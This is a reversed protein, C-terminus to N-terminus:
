KVFLNACDSKDGQLKDVTHTLAPLVAALSEKVAKPSGPFNIVVSEGVTGAVARSIMAHPTKELGVAVIAREFGTLRKDIVAMTAEPSVDRPGVGTGGTTLILDFKSLHALQLILTKLENCEDPIIYGQVLSTPLVESVMEAILPGAKDERDGAAGKDSLTIYALSYGTKKVALEIKKSLPLLDMVEAIWTKAGPVSSAWLGSIIKLLPRGEYVLEAGARLESLGTDVNACSCGAPFFCDDGLM